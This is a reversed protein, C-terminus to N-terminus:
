AKLVRRRNLDQMLARIGYTWPAVKDSTNVRNLLTGLTATSVTVVDGL